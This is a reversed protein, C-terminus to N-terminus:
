GSMKPKLGSQTNKPACMFMYTGTHTGFLVMKVESLGLTKFDWSEHETNQLKGNRNGGGM